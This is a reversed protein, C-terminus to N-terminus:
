FKYNKTEKRCKLQWSTNNMASFGFELKSLKKKLVLGEYLPTTIIDQYLENFGFTYTPAKYIGDIKTCCLHNYSMLVGNITVIMRNCPYLVEILTLREEVTKGILWEDNYALIDWIVFSHNLDQGFEGIKNKNLYEGAIVMTGIGRYIPLINAKFTSLLEKHRNWAKFETKTLFVVCCSGNYKPQALYEGNDYKGLDVSPIKVDPRPPFIYNPVKM